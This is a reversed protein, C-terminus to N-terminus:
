VCKGHSVIFTSPFSFRASKPADFLLWVELNSVLSGEAEKLTGLPSVRALVDGLQLVPSMCTGRESQQLLSSAAEGGAQPFINLIVQEYDCRPDWPSLLVSSGVLLKSLSAIQLCVSHQNSRLVFVGLTGLAPLSPKVRSASVSCRCHWVCLPLWSHCHPPPPSFQLSILFLFFVVFSWNATNLVVEGSQRPQTKRKPILQFSIELKVDLSNNRNLHSIQPGKGLSQKLRWFFLLSSFVAHTCSDLAIWTPLKRPPEAVGLRCWPCFFWCDLKPPHTTSESAFIQKLRHHWTLVTGKSMKMTSVARFHASWAEPFSSTILCIKRPSPYSKFDKSVGRKQLSGSRNAWWCVLMATAALMGPSLSARLLCFLVFFLTKSLIRVALVSSCTQTWYFVWCKGPDQKAIFMVSLM